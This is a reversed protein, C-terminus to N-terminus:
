VEDVLTRVRKVSSVTNNGLHQISQLTFLFNLRLVNKLVQVQQQKDVDIEEWANAASHNLTQVDVTFKETQLHVLIIERSVM